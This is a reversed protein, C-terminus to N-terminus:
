AFHISRKLSILFFTHGMQFWVPRFGCGLPRCKDTDDNRSLYEGGGRSNKRRSETLSHNRQEFNYQLTDVREFFIFGRNSFLSFVWVGELNHGFAREVAGQFLQAFGGAM